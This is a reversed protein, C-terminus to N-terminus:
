YSNDAFIQQATLVTDDIYSDVYSFQDSIYLPTVTGLIKKTALFAENLTDHLAYLSPTLEDFIWTEAFLNDYITEM